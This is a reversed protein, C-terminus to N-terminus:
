PAHDYALAAAIAAASAAPPRTGDVPVLDPIRRMWIEQRRAYQRTREVLRRRATELDSEGDLVARLTDLGLTRAATASPETTAVAARVEDLAGRALMADVRAAIRAHLEARPVALGFIRTPRRTDAAFLRDDAPALSAGLEALELARVVRRRDHPHVRAAAAPDAAVLRAHAAAAGDRDYDAALRERLGTPPQPPLALDALAARLYLGTGGVVIPTRSRRLTADIAAHAAAAYQAVDGDADLAFSAVLHHRVRALEDPTPQNTLIPLGRYLQMADCSVIEGDILGALELAVDSKGSATAGFLAVVVPAPESV